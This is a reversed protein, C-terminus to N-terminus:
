GAHEVSGKSLDDPTDKFIHSWLSDFLQEFLKREFPQLPLPFYPKNASSDEARPPQFEPENIGIQKIAIDKLKWPVPYRGAWEVFKVLRQVIDKQKMNFPINAKEALLILEHGNGPWKYKIGPERAKIIAKLLNEIAFGFLMTAAGAVELNNLELPSVGREMAKLDIEYADFILDGGRKLRRANLAWIAPTEDGMRYQEEFFNSNM